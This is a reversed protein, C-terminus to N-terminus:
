VGCHADKRFTKVKCSLLKRYLLFFTERSVHFM